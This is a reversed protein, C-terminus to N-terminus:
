CRLSHYKSAFHTLALCTSIKKKRTMGYLSNIRRSSTDLICSEPHRSETQRDSVWQHTLKALTQFTPIIYFFTGSTNSIHPTLSIGCM